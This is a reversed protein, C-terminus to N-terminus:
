HKAPLCVSCVCVMHCETGDRVFHILISKYVLYVLTLQIVTISQTNM